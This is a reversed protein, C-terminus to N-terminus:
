RDLRRVGRAAFWALPLAMGALAILGGWTDAWQVGGPLFGERALRFINTVPNVRAVPKLWSTLNAVPIQASSLFMASFIVVQVLALSRQSKLRVAVGLGWLCAIVAVGEVALLLTAVGLLGGTLRAGFVMGVVFVIMVPILARLVAALVPGLLLTRRPAPALLLRDYFGGELDRAVSFTAGMGAFAAGQLIAYPVVWNLMNDTPLLRGRALGSFSGAFAALFFMPMVLIPVFAGPVRFVNVISRTALAFGVRWTSAQHYGRGREEPRAVADTVTM